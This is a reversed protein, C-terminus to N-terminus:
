APAPTAYRRAGIAMAILGGVFVALLAAAIAYNDSPVDPRLLDFGMLLAPVASAACM